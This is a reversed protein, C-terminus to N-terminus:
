YLCVGTLPPDVNLCIRVMTNPNTVHIAHAVRGIFRQVMKMSTFSTVWPFPFENVMGEPENVVDIGLLAPYAALAKAIPKVAVEIFSELVDRDTLIAPRFLQVAGDVLCLLVYVNHQQAKLLFSQLDPIPSSSIAVLKGTTDDWQTVYSAHFDAFLFVRILNGGSRQIAQLDATFLPDTESAYNGAGFDCGFCNWARNVGSFFLRGGGNSFPMVATGNAFGAYPGCSGCANQCHDPYSKCLGRARLQPCSWGPPPDNACRQASPSSPPTIKVDPTSHSSRMDVGAAVLVVFVFLALLLSSLACTVRPSLQHWKLSKIKEDIYHYNVVSLFGFSALAFYAASFPSHAISFAYVAAIIMECSLIIEVVGVRRLPKTRDWCELGKLGTSLRACAQSICAALM